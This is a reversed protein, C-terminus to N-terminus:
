SPIEDELVRRIGALGIAYMGPDDEGQATFVLSLILAWAQGRAWTAADVDLVERMIAREPADFLMWGMLYDTAPDGACIDGFDIIASLVEGDTLANNPHLDGHLWVPPGAFEPTAVLRKWRRAVAGLTDDPVLGPLHEVLDRQVREGRDVLSGGRFPNTPADGPAPRHLARLFHALQDAMTATGRSGGVPRGPFWPVISWRWPFGHAPVGAVVPTPVPLPLRPALEPLWALENEVLAAAVARRPIRIAHDDGLRHIENDWGAAVLELPLEAFRPAQDRLLARLLGESIEVEAAPKDM